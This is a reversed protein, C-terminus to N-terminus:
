RERERIIFERGGVDGAIGSQAFEARFLLLLSLQRQLGPRVHGIDGKGFNTGALLGIDGETVVALITGAMIVVIGLSVGEQRVGNILALVQAPLGPVVDVLGVHFMRGAFVVAALGKGVFNAMRQAQAMRAIVVGTFAVRGVSVGAVGFISTLEAQHTVPAFGVGTAVVAPVVSRRWQQIVNGSNLM